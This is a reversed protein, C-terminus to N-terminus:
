REQLCDYANQIYEPMHGKYPIMVADANEQEGAGYLQEANLYAFLWPRSSHKEAWTYWRSLEDKSENDRLGHSWNAVHSVLGPAALASPFFELYAISEDKLDTVNRQMAAHISLAHLLTIFLMLATVIGLLGRKVEVGLLADKQYIDSLLLALVVCFLLTPRPHYLVGDVLSFALIAILTGFGGVVVYDFKGPQMIRTIVNRLVNGLLMLFLLAGPWGWELVTQPFLGHPHITSSYSQQSVTFLYGEPGEGFFPVLLSHRFVDKWISLRGSSVEDLTEGTVTSHFIRLVGFSEDSLPVSILLGVFMTGFLAMIYRKNFYRRNVIVLACAASLFAFFPGRGGLVFLCSWACVIASLFVFEQFGKGEEQSRRLLEFAVFLVILAYYGFHRLHHFGLFIRSYNVDLGIDAFFLVSGMLISYLVFGFVIFNRVLWRLEANENFCIYLAYVFLIHWMTESFRVLSASFHGSLIVSVLMWGCWAFLMLKTSKNLDPVKALPYSFIVFVVVSAEVLMVFLKIGSISSFVGSFLPVEPLFATILFLLFSICVFRWDFNTGSGGM